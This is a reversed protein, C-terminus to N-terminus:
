ILSITLTTDVEVYKDTSICYLKSNFYKYNALRGVFSVNEEKDALAQYKSYLDKPIVLTDTFTLSPPPNSNALSSIFM